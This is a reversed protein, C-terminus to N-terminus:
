KYHGKLKLLAVHPHELEWSQGEPTTRVVYMPKRPLSPRLETNEATCYRQLVRLKTRGQSFVRYSSGLMDFVMVDLSFEGSVWNEKRLVLLFFSTKICM